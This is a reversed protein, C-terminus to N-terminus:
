STFRPGLRALLRGRHTAYWWDRACDFGAPFYLRDLMPAGPDDNQHENGTCVVQAGLRRPVAAVDTAADGAFGHPTAFAPVANTFDGLAHRNREFSDEFLDSRIQRLDWHHYLHSGLWVEREAAAALDEPSATPGQFVQFRVDDALRERAQEVHRAGDSRDLKQAPAGGGERLARYRAVAALDPDGAVTGMNVFCLAPLGLEGLIPLATRFVGAWADDFTLLAANPPLPSRGGLQPLDKPGIVTFRRQIWSAQARFLEPDTNGGTVRLFESPSASVEHFIFITLGRTLSARWAPVFREGWVGLISVGNRM